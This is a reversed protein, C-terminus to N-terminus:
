VEETQSELNFLDNLVDVLTEAEGRKCAAKLQLVPLKIIKQMMSKTVKDVLKAESTDAQRLYRNMEEKRIQELANKLKQIAPSVTMEQTWENYGKLAEAMIQEVQSVAEYRVQLTANVKENITDINYLLVGPVEEVKTEACRPVSLDIIYKYSLPPKGVLLDKTVLPKDAVAACIIVDAADVEDGLKNFPVAKYDLEAALAKAKEFTRNCVTVNSLGTNKLNRCVDAGMEGLGIVLVKPLHVLSGALEDALDVAAYSVSSAGSRFMTEQVIRKNAFFITHLLRHLLPGAAQADATQQYAQKVQSIIQLDGLIKSELGLSVRFLYEEAEGSDNKNIFLPLYHATNLGKFRCLLGIVQRSNDEQSSYYVETRNCTSLVLIDQLGLVDALQGIFVPVEQNSLSIKERFSVPAEKHSLSVVRFLASM